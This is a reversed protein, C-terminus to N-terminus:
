LFQMFVLEGELYDGLLELRLLLEGVAAGGTLGGLHRALQSLYPDRGIGEERGETSSAGALTLSLV